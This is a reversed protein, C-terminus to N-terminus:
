NILGLLTATAEQKASLIKRFEAQSKEVKDQKAKQAARYKALLEKIQGAPANDDVAKQLADAEPNSTSGRRDGDTRNRGGGMLRGLGSGSMSERRADMVKQVMPKVAKWETEDTFGLQTRVGEMTRQQMQAPDWNGRGGQGGQGRERTPPPTENQALISLTASALVVAACLGTVPRGSLISRFPNM